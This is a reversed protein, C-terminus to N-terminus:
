SSGRLGKTATPTCYHELGDVICCDLLRGEPRESAVKLSSIALAISAEGRGFYSETKLLRASM